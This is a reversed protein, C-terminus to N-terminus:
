DKPWMTRFVSPVGASIRAQRRRVWARGLYRLGRVVLAAALAVPAVLDAQTLGHMPSFAYLVRGEWKHNVEFWVLSSGIMALWALITTWWRRSFALWCASLILVAHVALMTQASVASLRQVLEHLDTEAQPVWRELWRLASGGGRDGGFPRIV